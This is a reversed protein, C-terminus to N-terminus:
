THIIMHRDCGLFWNAIKASTKCPKGWDWLSFLPVIAQVSWCEKKTCNRNIQKEYHGRINTSNFTFHLNREPCPHKMIKDMM